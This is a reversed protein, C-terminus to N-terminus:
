IVAVGFVARGADAEKIWFAATQEDDVELCGKNGESLHKCKYEKAALSVAAM